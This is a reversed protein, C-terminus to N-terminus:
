HSKIEGIHPKLVRLEPVLGLLVFWERQIESRRKTPQLGPKRPASQSSCSSRLWIVIWSSPGTRCTVTQFDCRVVTTALVLGNLGKKCFVRVVSKWVIHIKPAWSVCSCWFLKGKLLTRLGLFLPPFLMSIGSIQTYRFPSNEHEATVHCWCRASYM